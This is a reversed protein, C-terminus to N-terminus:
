KGVIKKMISTINLWDKPCEKLAKSWLYENLAVVVSLLKYEILFNYGNRWIESLTYKNAASNSFGFIPM